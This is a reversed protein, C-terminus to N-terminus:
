FFIDVIDNKQIVTCMIIVNPQKLIIYHSDLSKRFNTLDVRILVLTFHLDMLHQGHQKHCLESFRKLMKQM